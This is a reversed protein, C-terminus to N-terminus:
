KASEQNGKARREPHSAVLDTVQPIGNKLSFMFMVRGEIEVATKDPVTLMPHFIWHAVAKVVEPAIAADPAQLLKVDEVVGTTSVRVDAVAVGSHGAQASQPPYAPMVVSQAQSRFVEPSVQVTLPKGAPFAANAGMLALAISANRALTMRSM